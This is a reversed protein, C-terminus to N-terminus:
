KYKQLEIAVQKVKNISKLNIYNIRIDNLFYKILRKLMKAEVFDPKVLYIYTLVSLIKLRKKLRKLTSM